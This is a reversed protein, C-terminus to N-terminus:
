LRQEKGPGDEPLSGRCAAPGPQRPFSKVNRGDRDEADGMAAVQAALAAVGMGDPSVGVIRQGRPLEGGDDLLRLVEPDSEEDDGPPFREGPRLDHIDAARMPAHDEDEDGVAQKEVCRQDLPQLALGVRNGREADLARLHLRVLPAPGAHVLAQPALHCLELLRPDEEAEGEGHRPAVEVDDRVRGEDVVRDVLAAAEEEVHLVRRHLAARVIPDDGVLLAAAHLAEHRLEAALELSYEDRHRPVLLLLSAAEGRASTEHM